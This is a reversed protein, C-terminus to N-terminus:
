MVVGGHLEVSCLVVGGQILVNEIEHIGVRYGCRSEGERYKWECGGSITEVGYQWERYLWVV